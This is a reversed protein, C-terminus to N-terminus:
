VIKAERKEQGMRRMLVTTLRDIHTRGSKERAALIRAVARKEFATAKARRNSDEVGLGADRGRLYELSEIEDAANDAEAQEVLIAKYLDVAQELAEEIQDATPRM